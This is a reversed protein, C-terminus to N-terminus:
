LKEGKRKEEEEKERIYTKITTELKDIHWEIIFKELGEFKSLKSKWMLLDKEFLEILSNEMTMKM